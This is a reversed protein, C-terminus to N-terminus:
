SPRVTPTRATAYQGLDHQRNGTRRLVRKTSIQSQQVFQHCTRTLGGTHGTHDHHDRARHLDVPRASGAWPASWTTTTWPASSGERGSSPPNLQDDCCGQDLPAAIAPPGLCLCTRCNKGLKKGFVSWWGNVRCIRWVTRNCVEFGAARVKDALRCEACILPFRTGTAAPILSPISTVVRNRATRDVYHNNGGASGPPGAAPNLERAGHSCLSVDDPLFKV